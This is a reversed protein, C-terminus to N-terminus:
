PGSRCGSIDLVKRWGNDANDVGEWLVQVCADDFSRRAAESLTRWWHEDAYVHTYGADAMGAPSPEAVLASWIPLSEYDLDSSRTLRGSLVVARWPHSDFVIAQPPLQDWLRTAMGADLAAMKETFVGSPVATLLSGLVVVGPFVLAAFYAASGFRVPWTPWRRWAQLCLPVSLIVWGLLAFATFRSIDRDARYRVFLPLLFGALSAMGLIALEFRGRRGWHFSRVVVFPGVVLAAGLELAAIVITPGHDLRLEGLHSSVIAAPWRLSFLPGGASTAEPPGGFLAGRAMETITGGQILSVAGAAVVAAVAWRLRRRWPEDGKWARIAVAWALVGASFLGFSAEFALAWSSFLVALVAAGVGSRLRPLLLLAMVLFLRSLSGPGAQMGLTFPELVGSLYAFPIPFPPGGAIIWDGLLAQRLTSAQSATGWLTMAQGAVNLFAPPALLLLWRAGGAFLLAACLLWGGVASHSLRRGALYAVGLSLAAVFGKTLDFASWPFFGGLRMASAGFLQFGYHYRFLVAPNMYFHPPIDGAAMLSILSLNKRDDLIALGRGILTFLLTAALIGVVIPWGRLDERLTTRPGRVFAIVGAFLVAIGALPFAVGPALWQGLFNALFLHAGLGVGIGVPLREHAALHFARRALLWGGVAWGLCVLLFPVISIPSGTMFWYM